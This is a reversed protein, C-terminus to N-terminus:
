SNSKRKLKRILKGNESSLMDITNKRESSVTVLGVISEDRKVVKSVLSNSKIRMLNNEHQLGKLEKLVEKPSMLVGDQFIEGNCSGAYEIHSM